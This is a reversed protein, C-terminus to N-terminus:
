LSPADLYHHYFCRLIVCIIMNPGLLVDVYWYIMLSIFMNVFAILFILIGISRHVKENQHVGTM